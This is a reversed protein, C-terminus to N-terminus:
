GKKSVSAVVKYGFSRFSVIGLSAKGAKFVNPINNRQFSFIQILNRHHNTTRKNKSTKHVAMKIMAEMWM